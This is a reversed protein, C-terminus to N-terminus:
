LPERVSTPGPDVMDDGANDAKLVQQRLEAPDQPAVFKRLEKGRSDLIVVTPVRTIGFDHAADPQEDVDIRVPLYLENIKQRLTQNEAITRQVRRDPAANASTFFLWLRRGDEAATKRAAQLDTEWNLSAHPTEEEIVEDAAEDAEDEVREVKVDFGMPEFYEGYHMRLAGLVMKAANGEAGAIKVGGLENLTVAGRRDVAVRQQRSTPRPRKQTITIRLEDGPLYMQDPDVQPTPAPQFVATPAYVDTERFTPSQNLSDSAQLPFQPSGWGPGPQTPTSPVIRHQERFSTPPESAGRADEIQSPTADMLNPPLPSTRVQPVPAFVDVVGATPADTLASRERNSALRGGDTPINAPQRRNAAAQKEAEMQKKLALAKARAHMSDARLLIADALKEEAEMWKSEAVTGENRQTKVLQTFREIAKAKRELGEARLKWYELELEYAEDAQAEEGEAADAETQKQQQVFEILQQQAHNVATQQGRLVIIKKGDNTTALELHVKEGDASDLTLRGDQSRIELRPSELKMTSPVLRGSPAAEDVPADLAETREAQEPAVAMLAFRDSGSAEDSPPRDVALAAGVCAGVFLVAAIAPKLVAAVFMASAGQEALSVATPTVGQAATTSGNTVLHHAAGATPGALSSSVGSARASAVAASAVGTAISLSVGRRALRSRLMQKGRALRGKITATTVDMAEAAASRSRGELYCLVLPTQYRAPLARLEEVLVSVTHQRHLEDLPDVEDGAIDAADINAEINAAPRRTLNRAHLLATRHAVRCLWGAASDSSRIDGARRALILFTAQFADEVDAERSLVRRCVAWVLPGHSELLKAFAQHDGHRTFRMLLEGDTPAISTPNPSRPSPSSTNPSRPSAVPASADSAPPPVALDSM